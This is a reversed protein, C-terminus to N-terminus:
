YGTVKQEEFNDTLENLVRFEILENINIASRIASILGQNIYSFMVLESTQNYLGIEILANKRRIRVNKLKECNNKVLKSIIENHENVLYVRREGTQPEPLVKIFYQDEKLTVENNFEMTDCFFKENLFLKGRLYCNNSEYRKLNITM